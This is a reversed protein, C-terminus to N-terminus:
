IALADGEQVRAVAVVDVFAAGARKLALACAEATAGTTLVDDVLLVRKGAVRAAGAATVSFAGRVAERRGRRSRGGQGGTDRGRVLADPLYRVGSRWSLARALEAAQNYRRAFLRRPHMPVPALVDAEALLDDASRQLWGALLGALDTRDGHKLKLILGRSAEDYLCACRARDFARPRAECPACRVAPGLFYPFPAGCGDCCPQEIWVIREWARASLGPAFPREDGDLSAPPLILDLAHRVSARV